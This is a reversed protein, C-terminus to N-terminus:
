KVWQIGFSLRGTLIKRNITAGQCDGKQTTMLCKGLEKTELFGSVSCGGHQPDFLVRRFVGLGECLPKFLKQNSLHKKREECPTFSFFIYM